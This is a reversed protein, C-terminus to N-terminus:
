AAIGDRLPLGYLGAAMQRRESANLMQARVNPLSPVIEPHVALRHARHAIRTDALSGALAWDCYACSATVQQREVLARHLASGSGQWREKGASDFNM